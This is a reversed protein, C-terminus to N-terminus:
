RRLHSQWTDASSDGRLRSAVMRHHGEGMWQRGTRPDHIVEPEYEPDVGPVDGAMYKRLTPAHLHSQTTHLTESANVHGRQEAVGSSYDGRMAPFEWSGPWKRINAARFVDNVERGKIVEDPGNIIEMARGFQQENLTM